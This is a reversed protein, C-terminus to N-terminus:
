GGIHEAWTLDKIHDRIAADINFGDPVFIYFRVEDFRPDDGDMYRKFVSCTIGRGDHYTCLKLLRYDIAQM